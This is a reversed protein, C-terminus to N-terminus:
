QNKEWKRGEGENNFTEPFWSHSKREVNCNDSIYMDHGKGKGGGFTPGYGSGGFILNDKGTPVWKEKMDLSFIFINSHPDSVWGGSSNWPHNTFGGMTKGFETRVLM